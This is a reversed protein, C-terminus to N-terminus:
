GRSGFDLKMADCHSVGDAPKAGPGGPQWVRPSLSPRFIPAVFEAIEQGLAALAPTEPALQLRRVFGSRQQVKSADELFATTLAFPLNYPLPTRRREFTATIAATLAALDFSKSRALFWIDFFDKM